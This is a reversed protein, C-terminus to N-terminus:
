AAAALTDIAVKLDAHLDPAEAKLFAVLAHENPGLKGDHGIRAGLWPADVAAVPEGTVIEVKQRELAAIGREERSLLRYGGLMGAAVRSPALDGRRELWVERALAEERSPVVYGSASLACNAIAKVFLDRWSPCNDAGITAQDIEFLTEAEMQTININSDGGFAYIIRRLLEVDGETVRPTAVERGVALVGTQLLIADRAQDLAFKALSPPSWRSKDLINIVLEFEGRSAIRGDITLADRMVEAQALTVYGEPESQNVVYDTLMEVFCDIWVPTPATVARNLAILQQAEADEISSDAYYARRLKLVDTETIQGDATVQELSLVSHSQMESVTSWM